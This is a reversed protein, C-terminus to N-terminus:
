NISKKKGISFKFKVEKAKTIYLNNEDTKNDYFLFQFDHTNDHTYEVLDKANHFGSNTCMKYVYDKIDDTSCKRFFLYDFNSRITSSVLTSARQSSLIVTINYHRGRVAMNNLSQNQSIEIDDFICLIDIRKMKQSERFQQIKVLHDMTQEIEENTRYIFNKPMFSYSNDVTSLQATSSFLYILDYKRVKLMNYVLDNILFSKGSNRGSIIVCMPNIEVKLIKLVDKMLLAKQQKKTETENNCNCTKCHKKVISM